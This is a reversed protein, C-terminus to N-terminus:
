KNIILNQGPPKPRWTTMVFKKTNTMVLIEQVHSHRVSNIVFQAFSHNCGVLCMPRSGCPFGGGAQRSSFFFVHCPPSHGNSAAKNMERGEKKEEEKGIVNEEKSRVRECSGVGVSRKLEDRVMNGKSAQVGPGPGM